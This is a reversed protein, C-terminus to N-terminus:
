KRLARPPRASPPRARLHAALGVKGVRHHQRRVAAAGLHLRQAVLDVAREAGVEQVREHPAGGGLVVRLPAGTGCSRSGVRQM